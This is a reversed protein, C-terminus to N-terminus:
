LWPFVQNRIFDFNRSVPEAGSIIGMHGPLLYAVPLRALREISHKLQDANGGPLDVRGTNQDFIVDGCILVKDDPSYFCISDPSHGPAHILEWVTDDVKLRSDDLLGDATFEIPSMGFFRATDVVTESWHEKQLPHCLTKAGSIERFRDNAWCHDGHLHTNLILGIDGPKIDDRKMDEILSPLSDASGTDIIVSTKGKIIYTNADLMGREPYFYLNETLKM